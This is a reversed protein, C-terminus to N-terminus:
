SGESSGQRAERPPRGEQRQEEEQRLKHKRESELSKHVRYYMLDMLHHELATMQRESSESASTDGDDEGCSRGIGDGDGSTTDLTTVEEPVGSQRRDMSGQPPLGVPTPAAM